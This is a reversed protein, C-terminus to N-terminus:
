LLPTKSSEGPIERVYQPVGYGPLRQRLERILERGRDESVEFQAVGAVRDLQHLYYPLVGVDLLRQSLEVLTSGDDNVGALLVSQNLVSVGSRVLRKLARACDGVIEAPHNAHVVVYPTARLARLARMLETTVRSPLVIPLRTHLRLRRLHPIADLRSLLEGLRRDSLMLPDGGSLLVEELSSDASLEALAPEWADLTQPADQYPYHRRFCYRCNVACAGTTILLARGSYKQLLGPSREAQQEGLADDVFGPRQDLEAARPLVQRLLPDNLDGVRMRKLFSEPVLLPFNRGGAVVEALLESPLQLRQLLEAPDRIAAILDRQWRVRRHRNTSTPLAEAM